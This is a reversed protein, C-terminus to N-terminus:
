LKKLQEYLENLINLDFASGPTLAYHLHRMQEESPKWSPKLAKVLWESCEAQSIEWDRRWVLNDLLGFVFELVQEDRDSWEQKPQSCSSQYKLQIHHSDLWDIKKQTNEAFTTEGKSKFMERRDAMDLLIDNFMDEDEESWENSCLKEVDENIKKRNLSLVKLWNIQENYKESVKGTTAYTYNREFEIDKIISQRIKEDEENWESCNLPCHERLFKIQNDSLGSDDGIVELKRVITDYYDKDEESWEVQYKERAEEFREEPKQQKNFYEQIKSADKDIKLQKDQDIPLKYEVDENKKKLNLSLSKIFDILEPIISPLGDKSHTHRDWSELVLIILDIKRREEDSWEQKPQPCYSSLRELCEDKSMAWEKRWDLSALLDYIFGLLQLDEVTRTDSLEVPKQEKQKERERRAGEDLGFHYAITAEDGFSSPSKANPEKQKELYAKMKVVTDYDVLKHACAFELTQIISKRIREDESEALEPHLLYFSELLTDRMPIDSHELAEKLNNLAQEKTM